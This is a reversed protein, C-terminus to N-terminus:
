IHSLITALDNASVGDGYSRLIEQRESRIFATCVHSQFEAVAREIPDASAIHRACMLAVKLTNAYHGDTALTSWLRTNMEAQMLSKVVRVARMDSLKGTALAAELENRLTQERDRAVALHEIARRRCEDRGDLLKPRQGTGICRWALPMGETAPEPIAGEQEFEVLHTPLRGDYGLPHEASCMLCSGSARTTAM